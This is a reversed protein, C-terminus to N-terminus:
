FLLSIYFSKSTVKKTPISDDQLVLRKLMPQGSILLLWVRVKM